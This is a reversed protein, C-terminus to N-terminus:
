DSYGGITDTGAGRQHWYMAREVMIKKGETKCTVMVAARGQFAMNCTKRSNAPVAHTFTPNNYGDPTLYSIEVEVASDNPNQVLTWTECGSSKQGDPLYFTTHPAALGISDHCAGGTGNGWYMAREAIIPVSGHVHTSLDTGPLVDNVCITKRSNPDMRFTPQQQPGSPTMYIITVDTPKDNPNQVLVYTTFGYDTTGEALYYDNAPTTTGISDHGERRNNRYMAREPIVPIDAEVKISADEAGIDDAMNFTARSSAPVKKEFTQPGRGEIMYTITAAAETDNPNQILLWCAFGWDSSGEPLYWIKAPATVGISCHGDGAVGAGAGSPAWYMTRDVAITKGETTCEVKTSFDINGLDDAPSLTTQSSAPLTIEPKEQPGNKTMYTVKAGVEGSGPNEITIYCDFGWDTTGEALYWIPYVVTFIKDDDSTGASTVVTLPGTSAGQPVMTEIKTDSWSPYETAPVGNFAVYSAAGGSEGTAGGRSSGFNSGEITVKTHYPPATSPSYREIWPKTTQITFAEYLLDPIEGGTMINVARATLAADPDITINATAHTADAVTTYNVTIDTGCSTVVSVGNLFSTDNGVIDVDLTAGRQASTPNVSVISPQAIRWVECGTNGNDTGVYLNSGDYALSRVASGPSYSGIMNWEWAAYAPACLILITSAVVAVSLLLATIKRRM